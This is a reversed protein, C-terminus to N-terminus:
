ERSRRTRRLAILGGIGLILLAGSGPEPVTNFRVQDIAINDDADGTLNFDLCIPSDTPITPPSAWFLGFAPVTVWM